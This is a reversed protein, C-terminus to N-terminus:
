ASPNATNLKESPVHEATDEKKLISDIARRAAGDGADRDYLWPDFSDGSIDCKLPRGHYYDFCLACKGLPKRDNIDREAQEVSCTGINHLFGMGLCRTGNHLAALVKAKDLGKISIEAVTATRKQTPQKRSLLALIRAKGPM